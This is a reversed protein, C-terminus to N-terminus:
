LSIKGLKGTKINQWGGRKNPGGRINPVYSYIELSFCKSHTKKISGQSEFSKQIIRGKGLNTLMQHNQTPAFPCKCFFRQFLYIQDKVLM